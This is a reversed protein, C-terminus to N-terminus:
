KPIDQETSAHWGLDCARCTKTRVCMFRNGINAISPTDAPNGDTPFDVRRVCSVPVEDSAAAYTRQQGYGLVGAANLNSTSIVPVYM